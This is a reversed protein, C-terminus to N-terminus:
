KLIYLGANHSIYVSKQFKNGRFLKTARWVASGKSEKDQPRAEQDGQQAPGLTRWMARKEFCVFLISTQCKWFVECWHTLDAGTMVKIWCSFYFSSAKGDRFEIFETFRESPKNKMLGICISFASHSQTPGAKHTRPGGEGEGAALGPYQTKHGSSQSHPTPARM